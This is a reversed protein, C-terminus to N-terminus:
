DFDIIRNAYDLYAKGKEKFYHGINFCNEEKNYIWTTYEQKSSNYALVIYLHKENEHKYQTFDIVVYGNKNPVEPIVPEDYWSSEQGEFVNMNELMIEDIICDMAIAQGSTTRGWYKGYDNDIL